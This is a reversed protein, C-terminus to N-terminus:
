IFPSNLVKSYLYGPLTINRVKEFTNVINNSLENPDEGHIGGLNKIANNRVVSPVRRDMYNFTGNDGNSVKTLTGDSNVRRYFPEGKIKIFSGVVHEGATIVKNDKKCEDNNFCNIGEETIYFVMGGSYCIDGQYIIVGKDPQIESVANNSLNIEALGQVDAVRSTYIINQGGTATLSMLQKLDKFVPESKKIVNGNEVTLNTFYFGGNDSHAYMIIENDDTIDCAVPFDDFLVKGEHSVVVEGGYEFIEDPNSLVPKKDKRSKDQVLMFLRNDPMMLKRANFYEQYEGICETEEKELDMKYLILHQDDYSAGANAAIYISGDSLLMATIETINHNENIVPLEFKKQNGDADIRIIKRSADEAIVAIYTSGEEGAALCNINNGSYVQKSVGLATKNDEPNDKGSCGTAVIFCNAIYLLLLAKRYVKEKIYYFVGPM